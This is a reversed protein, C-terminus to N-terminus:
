LIECLKRYIIFWFIRAPIVNWISRSDKECERRVLMSLTRELYGLEIWMSKSIFKVANVGFLATAQRRTIYNSSELLKSNYETFFWDYNKSLFEAVTSKHRTLLEKFTAAADAAIDFNPLQIYDFFKKMHESELVYRAVSQHRICERLMAGYHLAMDTNEYGLILKDMLDINQKLYDCAILRSQVQQRQLNAVVQTADKRTELNLNPLCNIILSRTRENGYLVIKLERISKSLEMMKEERKGERTDPVRDVYMLLERTQRVLDVPTKPKSKFLGKMKAGDGAGFSNERFSSAAVAPTPVSGRSCLQHSSARGRETMEKFSTLKKFKEWPKDWVIALYRRISGGGDKANIVLRYNTGAVVQSEGKAISQFELKTGAEKNHENVAFM